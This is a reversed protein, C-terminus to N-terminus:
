PTCPKAHLTDSRPVGVVRRDFFINLYLADIYLAFYSGAADRLQLSKDLAPLRDPSPSRRSVAPAPARVPIRSSQGPARTSTRPDSSTPSGVRGAYARSSPRQALPSIRGASGQSSSAAQNERNRVPSPPISAGKRISPLPSVPRNSGRLSAALSSHSATVPINGAPTRPRESFLEKQRTTPSGPPTGGDPPLPSLSRRSTLSLTRSHSWRPRPANWNRERQHVPDEAGLDEASRNHSDNSSASSISHRKNQRDPSYFSLSSTSRLLGGGSQTRPRSPSHVDM